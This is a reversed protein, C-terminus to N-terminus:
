EITDNIYNIENYEPDYYSEILSLQKLNTKTHIPIKWKGPPTVYIVRFHKQRAVRGVFQIVTDANNGLTLLVNPIGRFDIGKFGAATALVVKVDNRATLLKFRELDIDGEISSWYGEGTITAIHYKDSFRDVINEIYELNNIPIFLKDFENLIWNITQIYVPHSYIFNCIERYIATESFQHDNIDQCTEVLGPNVVKIIDVKYEEPKFFIHSMGFNNIVYVTTEDHICSLDQRIDIRDGKIKEATADFGYWRCSDKTVQNYVASYSDSTSSSVEDCIVVDVDHLFPDDPNFTNSNAFGKPNIINIMADEDYYGPDAFSEDHILLRDKIEDVVKGPCTVLVKKGMKLFNLIMRSIMETKGFGTPIQVISRRYSLLERVLDEQDPRLGEYNFSSAVLDNTYIDRELVEKSYEDLIDIFRNYIYTAFGRGITFSDDGWDYGVSDQVTFTNWTRSAYNFNKAEYSFLFDNWADFNTTVIYTLPYEDNVKVNLCLKM